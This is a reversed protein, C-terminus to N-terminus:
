GTPGTETKWVRYKKVFSCPRYTLKAQRLGKDGLDQERNVYVYQKPIRAAFAKNIFQYIGKFSTDAKEFHIVFSMRDVLPEGVVFAAPRKEVRYVAGSLRLKEFHELAERTEAYDGDSELTNKWQELVGIADPLTDATLPKEECSYSNLFGKVLNRKKHFRKGPLRALDSRFYLYDFNDRDETVRYGRACLVAHKTESVCKMNGYRELLEDFLVKEPLKAPCIFFSRDDDRGTVIITEPDARSIRYHHKQRFLFLGAFTYESLGENYARLIPDLIHQHSLDLEVTEPYDPIM